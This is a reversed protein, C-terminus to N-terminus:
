HMPSNERDDSQEKVEKNDEGMEALINLKELELYNVKNLLKPTIVSQRRNLNQQAILPQLLNMGSQGPTMKGLMNKENLNNLETDIKIEM